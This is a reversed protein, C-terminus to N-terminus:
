TKGRERGLIELIREKTTFILNGRLDVLFYPYKGKLKRIQPNGSRKVRRELERVGQRVAQNQAQLPGSSLGAVTAGLIEVVTTLTEPEKIVNRMDAGFGGGLAIIGVAGSAAPGVRKSRADIIKDVVEKIENPLKSHKIGREKIAKKSIKGHIIESARDKAKGMRKAARKIVSTNKKRKPM